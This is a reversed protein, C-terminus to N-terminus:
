GAGPAGKGGPATGAKQGGERPEVIRHVKNIAPADIKLVRGGPWSIECSEIEDADGLGFHVARSSQALYGGAAHV